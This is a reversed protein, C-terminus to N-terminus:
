HPGGAARQARHREDDEDGGQERRDHAAARSATFAALAAEFEARAADRASQADQLQELTAVSDAFLRGARQYDREAKEAGTRARTVAPEIEGLDLAARTLGDLLALDSGPKLALWDGGFKTRALKM